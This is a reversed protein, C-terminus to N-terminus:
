SETLTDLYTQIARVYQCEVITQHDEDALYASLSPSEFRKLNDLRDVMRSLKSIIADRNLPSM